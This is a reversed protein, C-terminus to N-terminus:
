QAMAELQNIETESLKGDSFFVLCEIRSKGSEMRGRFEKWNDEAWQQTSRHLNERGLNLWEDDMHLYLKGEAKKNWASQIRQDLIILQDSGPAEMRRGFFGLTNWAKIFIPMQENLNPSNEAQLTQMLIAMEVAKKSAPLLNEDRIFDGDDSNLVELYSQFLQEAKRVAGEIVTAIRRAMEEPSEAESATANQKEESNNPQYLRDVEEEFKSAIEPSVLKKKLWNLLTVRARSRCDRLDNVYDPKSFCILAALVALDHPLFKPLFRNQENILKEVSERIVSIPVVDGLLEKASTAIGNLDNFNTESSTGGYIEKKLENFTKNLSGNAPTKSPKKDKDWQIKVPEVENSSEEREQTVGKTIKATSYGEKTNNVSEVRPAESSAGQKSGRSFIWVWFGIFLFILILFQVDSMGGPRLSDKIGSQKNNKLPEVPPTSNEVESSLIKKPPEPSKKVEPPSINPPPDPLSIQDPSLITTVPTRDGFLLTLYLDKGRAEISGSGIKAGRSGHVDFTAKNGIIKGNSVSASSFELEPDQLNDSFEKHDIVGRFLHGIQEIEMKTFCSSDVIGENTWNGELTAPIEEVDAVSESRDQPNATTLAPVDELNPDGGVNESPEALASEQPTDETGDENWYKAEGKQLGYLYNIESKKQGGRYYETWKLYREGRLLLGEAMISGDDYYEVVDFYPDTTNSLVPRLDRLRVGKSFLSTYSEFGKEDWFTATGNPVGDDFYIESKPTGVEYFEMGWGFPIGDKYEYLTKLAGSGFRERIYGSFPKETELSFIVDKGAVSRSEVEKSDHSKELAMDVYHRLTRAYSYSIASSILLIVALTRM